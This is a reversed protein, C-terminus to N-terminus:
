KKIQQLLNAIQNITPEIIKGLAEEPSNGYNMEFGYYPDNTGSVTGAVYNKDPVKTLLIGYAIDEFELDLVNKQHEDKTDGIAEVVRALLTSISSPDAFEEPSLVLKSRNITIYEGNDKEGFMFPAQDENGKFAEPCYAYGCRHSEQKAINFVGASFANKVAFYFKDISAKSDVIRSVLNKMADPFGAPMGVGDDFFFSYESLGNGTQDDYSAQQWEMQMKFKGIGAIQSERKNAM